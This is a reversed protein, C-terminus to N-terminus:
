IQEVHQWQGSRNVIDACWDCLFLVRFHWNWGFKLSIFEFAPTKKKPQFVTCLISFHFILPFFHVNFFFFSVFCLLSRFFVFQEFRVTTGRDIYKHRCIADEGWIRLLNWWFETEWSWLALQWLMTEMYFLESFSFFFFSMFCCGFGNGYLSM